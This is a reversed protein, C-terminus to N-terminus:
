QHLLAVPPISREQLAKASTADIMKGESFWQATYDFFGEHGAGGIKQVDISFGTGGFEFGLSFLPDPESVLEDSMRIRIRLSELATSASQGTQLGKIFAKIAPDSLPDDLRYVAPKGKATSAKATRASGPPLRFSAELFVIAPDPAAGPTTPVFGGLDAEDLLKVLLEVPIRLQRAIGQLYRPAAAGSALRATRASLGFTIGSRGQPTVSVTAASGSPYLWHTTASQYTMSHYAGQAGKQVEVGKSVSKDFASAEIGVNVLATAQASVRRYTIVTDQTLVLPTAGPAGGEGFTQYRYAIRQVDGKAKADLSAGPDTVKVAVGQVEALEKGEATATAAASADFYGRISVLRLYCLRGRSGTTTAADLRQYRDLLRLYADIQALDAAKATPDPYTAASIKGRLDGLAKRLEGSKPKTWAQALTRIIPLKVTGKIPTLLRAIAGEIQAIAEDTFADKIKTKLADVTTAVIKPPAAGQARADVLAQVRDAIWGEIEAKAEGKTPGVIRELADELAALDALGSEQPSVFYAPLVDRLQVYQGDVGVTGQVGLDLTLGLEDTDVPPDIGAKVTVSFSGTWCTGQLTCLALPQTTTWLPTSTPASTTGTSTPASTTGTPTPASTTGTSTTPTPTTTPALATVEGPLRQLVVLTERSRTARGDITVSLAGLGPLVLDSVPPSVQADLGYGSYGFASSLQGSYDLGSKAFDQYVRVTSACLAAGDDGESADSPTGGGSAGGGIGRWTAINRTWLAHLAKNMGQPDTM